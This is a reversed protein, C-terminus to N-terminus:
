MNRRYGNGTPQCNIDSNSCSLNQRHGNFMRPLDSYSFVFGIVISIIIVLPILYLLRIKYMRGTKKVLYIIGALSLIGLLLAWWPFSGLLAALNQRAGYAPGSASQIRLWFTAISMFYVSIFVLLGIAVVSLATLYIYYSRPRMVTKKDHIKQMVNKEITSTKPQPKKNM